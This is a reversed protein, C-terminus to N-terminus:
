SRRGTGIDTRYSIMAQKSSQQVPIRLIKQSIVSVAAGTDIEMWVRQGNIYVEMLPKANLLQINREDIGNLLSLEEEEEEESDLQVHKQTLRPNQQRLKNRCAM